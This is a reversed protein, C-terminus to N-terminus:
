LWFISKKKSIDIVIVYCAAQLLVKIKLPKNHGEYLRLLWTSLFKTGNQLPVFQPLAINLTSRPRIEEPQPFVQMKRKSGQIANMEPCTDRGAANCPVDKSLQLTM